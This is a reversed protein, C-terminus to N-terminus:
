RNQRSLEILAHAEAGAPDLPTALLGAEAVKVASVIALFKTTTPHRSDYAQVCASVWAGACIFVHANDHVWTLAEKVRPPLFTPRRLTTARRSFLEACDLAQLLERALRARDEPKWQEEYSAALAEANAVWDSGPDGLRRDGLLPIIGTPGGLKTTLWLLDDVGEEGRVEPWFRHYAELLIIEKQAFFTPGDEAPQDGVRWFEVEEQWDEWINGANPAGTTETM